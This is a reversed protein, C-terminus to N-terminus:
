ISVRFSLSLQECDQQRWGSSVANIVLSVSLHVMRKASGHFSDWLNVLFCTIHRPPGTRAGTSVFFTSHERLVVLTGMLLTGFGWISVNSPHAPSWGPTNGAQVWLCRLYAGAGKRPSRFPDLPWSFSSTNQWHKDVKRNGLWDM